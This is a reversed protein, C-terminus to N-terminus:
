ATTVSIQRELSSISTHGQPCRVQQAEWDIGFQALAFGNEARAQWSQDANLPGLLDIAHETQSTVLHEATIYGTDVIQEAPLVGRAALNAKM